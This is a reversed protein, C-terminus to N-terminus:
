VVLEVQKIGALLAAEQVLQINTGINGVHAYM